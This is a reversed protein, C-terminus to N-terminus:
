APKNSDREAGADPGTDARGDRVVRRRVARLLGTLMRKIEWLLEQLRRVVDLEMIEIAAALELHNDVEHASSMAMDLFRAFQAPSQQGAGEAINAAISDVARLLQSRFGPAGRERKFAAKHCRVSLKRAKQWVLLRRFPQMGPMNAVISVRCVVM